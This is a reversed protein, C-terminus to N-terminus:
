TLATYFTLRQILNIKFMIRFTYLCQCFMLSKFPKLHQGWQISNLFFLFLVSVFISSQLFVFCASHLSFALSFCQIILHIPLISEPNDRGRECEATYHKWQREGCIDKLWIGSIPKTARSNDERQGPWTKVARQVSYVQWKVNIHLMHSMELELIWFEWLDMHIWTENHSFYFAAFDSHFGTTVSFHKWM